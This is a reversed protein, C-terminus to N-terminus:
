ASRGNVREYKQRLELRVAELLRTEEEDLNGKTKEALVGLLELTQRALHLDPEAVPGTAEAGEPGLHMLGSSALSIIFTSFTMAPEATTEPM